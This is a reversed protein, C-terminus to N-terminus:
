KVGGFRNEMRVIAESSDLISSGKGLFAGETPSFCSPLCQLKLDYDTRISHVAVKFSSCFEIHNEFDHTKPALNKAIQLLDGNNGIQKKDPPENFPISFMNYM